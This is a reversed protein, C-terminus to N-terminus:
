SVVRRGLEFNVTRPFILELCDLMDKSLAGSKEGSSVCVFTRCVVVVVVVLGGVDSWSATAWVVSSTVVVGFSLVVEVVGFM